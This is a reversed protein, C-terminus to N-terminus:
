RKMKVQKDSEEFVIFGYKKYFDVVDHHATLTIEREINDEIIKKLLLSGMNQHQYEEKIFMDSLYNSNNIYACGVIINTKYVVYIIDGVNNNQIYIEKLKEKLKDNVDKSSINYGRIKSFLKYSEDVLFDIIENNFINYKKIEIM